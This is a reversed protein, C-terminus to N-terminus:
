FMLIHKTYGWCTAPFHINVTHRQKGKASSKYPFFTHACLIIIWSANPGRDLGRLIDVHLMDCNSGGEGVVVCCFALRCPSVSCSPSLSCFLAIRCSGHQYEEEWLICFPLPSPRTNNENRHVDARERRGHKQLVTRRQHLPTWSTTSSLISSRDRRPHIRLYDSFRTIFARKIQQDKEIFRKNEWDSSGQMGEEASMWKSKM